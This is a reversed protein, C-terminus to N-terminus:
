GNLPALADRLPASPIMMLGTFPESMELILFIAASASLACILLMAFITLNPPAQLAFSFFIIVLWCALIVLFPAPLPSASQAFLLLRTQVLRVVTALAQEQLSRQLDNTPSLVRIRGYLTEAESNAVFPGTKATESSEERWLRSVFPGIAQRLSMRMVTTEPGYAALVNDLLIINATIENIQARESNYTSNASAILLGLVLAAMTAVLGIGLKVVTQSGDSLHDEPLITRLWMGGLTGGFMSVFVLLSVAPASM